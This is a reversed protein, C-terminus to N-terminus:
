NNEYIQEKDIVSNIIYSTCLLGSMGPVFSTSGLVNNHSKIPIEESCVVPIKAKIREDKVMKRINRALPDVSTKRIDMIKLKSPDLKNATGMSSIIKINRKVAQRILEKKTELTDCADIMFDINHNFLLDINEKTIFENIKVIELDKNIEKLRKEFVDVKPLGVTSSLAVLQRNLNTIDVVDKDVIIVKKIGARAISELAYGGVGGLGIVLVTMNKIKNLNETGILSDFRNLWDM